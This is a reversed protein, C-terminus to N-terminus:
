LDPSKGVMPLDASLKQSNARRHDAWRPVAQRCWGIFSLGIIIRHDDQRGLTTSSFVQRPSAPDRWGARALDHHSDQRKCAM